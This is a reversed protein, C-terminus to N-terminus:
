EIVFYNRQHNRPMKTVNVPTEEIHTNYFQEVKRVVRVDATTVLNVATRKRGSGDGYGTRYIYNEHNVPLDYNIILRLQQADIGRALMDTVILYRSRQTRFREMIIAREYSPMDAHMASITFGHDTLEKDLWEVKARTNCFIVAQM